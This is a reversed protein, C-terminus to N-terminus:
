RTGDTFEPVGTPHCTTCTMPDGNKTKMKQVLNDNMWQVIGAHGQSRDLFKEQGHHCSDCYVASGDAMVVKRSINEWVERANEKAKTEISFDSLDHCENCQVGMSENFTRMVKMKQNMPLDHLPPLNNVDLGAAALKATFTTPTPLPTSLASADDAPAADPAGADTESTADSAADAAADPANGIHVANESTSGDDGATAACGGAVLMALLLLSSSLRTM